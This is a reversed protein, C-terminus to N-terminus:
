GGHRCTWARYDCRRVRAYGGPLADRCPAIVLGRGAGWADRVSYPCRGVTLMVIHKGHIRGGDDLMQAAPQRDQQGDVGETAADRLLCQLEGAMWIM